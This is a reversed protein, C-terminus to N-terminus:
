LDDFFLLITWLITWLWLRHPSPPLSNGSWFLCATWIASNGLEHCVAGSGCVQFQITRLHLHDVACQLVQPFWPKTLKWSAVLVLRRQYHLVLPLLTPIVNSPLFVYISTFANWDISLSNCAAAALYPFPSVWLPLKYSISQLCWWKSRCPDQPEQGHLWLKYLRRRISLYNRIDHMRATVSFLHYNNVKIVDLFPGEKTYKM